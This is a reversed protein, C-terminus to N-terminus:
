VNMTILCVQPVGYSDPAPESNQHECKYEQVTSCKEEIATTCQEEFETQDVETCQEETAQEIIVECKEDFIERCEKEFRPRTVNTCSPQFCEIDPTQDECMQFLITYKKNAFTNM